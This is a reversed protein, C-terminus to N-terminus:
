DEDSDENIVVPINEVLFLKSLIEAPRVIKSLYRAHSLYYVVTAIHSCCGVTRNGNACNCCYRTIGSPGTSNPQYEIFSKYFKANTHRSRIDCRLINPSEVVCSIQFKNEADMMEALYSVAQKMQYSGTFFIKLDKETMEPFDMIDDSSLQKFPLKRRGLREAEVQIALTNETGKSSEM